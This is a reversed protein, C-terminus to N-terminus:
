KKLLSLYSQNIIDSVKDTTYKLAYEKNHRGLDSRVLDLGKLVANQVSESPSSADFKPNGTETLIPGVNGTNPGVVIKEFYFAMPLNGSNLIRIRQILVVDVASFYYPLMSDKVVGIWKRGLIGPYKIRYYISELFDPILKLLNRRKPVFCFSPAIIRINRRSLRLSLNGVLRKEEKSRFSGFCLIYKVDPKLGLKERSTQQTPFKTYVSDYVHHGLLCQKASPYRDRFLDLSYHGLHFILASNEYIIRYANIDDKDSDYHPGLNHCTSVIKTNERKLQLCRNQLEASTYHKKGVYLLNNPWMIHIIDYHAVSNWFKSVGYDIHIMNNVHKLGNILTAVYPNPFGFPNDIPFLVNM